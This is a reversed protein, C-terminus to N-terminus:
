KQNWLPQRKELFAKRGETADATKMLQELHKAVLGAGQLAQKVEHVHM